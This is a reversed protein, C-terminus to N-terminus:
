EKLGKVVAKQLESKFEPTNASSTASSAMATNSVTGQVAAPLNEAFSIYEGCNDDIGALACYAYYARLMDESYPNMIAASLGQWM